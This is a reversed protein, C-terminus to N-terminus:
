PPSVPPPPLVYKSGHPDRDPVVSYPAPSRLGSNGDVEISACGEFASSLGRVLGMSM